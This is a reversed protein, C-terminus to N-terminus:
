YEFEFIITSPQNNILFTKVPKLKDQHKMPYEILWQDHQEYVSIVLYRPKMDLIEKENKESFRTVYMDTYYTTQPVSQSLIIDNPESNEKIWLATQKVELYSDKKNKILQDAFELQSYCGITLIILIIILAIHKNTEKTIINQLQLLFNSILMFIFMMVLMIDRQELYYGRQWAFIASPIIIWLLIFLKKQQNKDKFIMDLGLILNFFYSLSLIFIILFTTKLHYLSDKVQSIMQKTIQTTETPVFKEEGGIGTYHSIFSTIPNKPYHIWLQVVFPMMILIIILASIWLQKNKIVKHRDKILILIGLPILYFLTSLKTFLALGFLIASVYTYKPNKEKIYGKWFFYLAFTTITAAPVGMLIRATFFLHVWYVSMLLSAILATKKNFLEKTLLYTGAVGLVSFILEVIRLGLEQFGLKYLFAWILPLFFVRRYYWINDTPIDFALRRAYSLYDSEDWWVASNITLYKLRIIFAFILITVLIINHYESFLRKIKEKIHM